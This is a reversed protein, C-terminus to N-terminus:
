AKGRGIIGRGGVSGDPWPEFREIYFALLEAAGEMQIEALELVRRRLPGKEREQEMREERFRLRLRGAGPDDASGDDKEEHSTRVPGLGISSRACRWTTRWGTVSPRM